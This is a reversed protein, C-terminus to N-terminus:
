LLFLVVCIKGKDIMADDVWRNKKLSLEELFCVNELLVKIHTNWNLNDCETISLRILKPSVYTSLASLLNYPIDLTHELVLSVLAFPTTSELVFNSDMVNVWKGILLELIPGGDIIMSSTQTTTTTMKKSDLQSSAPPIDSKSNKNKNKKKNLKSHTVEIMQDFTPIGPFYM